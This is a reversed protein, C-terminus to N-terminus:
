THIQHRYTAKKKHRKISILKLGDSQAKHAMWEEGLWQLFIGIIYVYEISVGIKDTASM